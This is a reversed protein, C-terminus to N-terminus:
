GEKLPLTDHTIIDLGIAAEFDYRDDRIATLLKGYGEAHQDMSIEEAPRLSGHLVYPAPFHMKCLSATQQLPTLFTRLTHNQYGEPTYAEAPGAATLALMMHKGALKDGDTGYAFGHELVLDQWEKIISPTSYWFFPFQFLIVDHELLRAQEKDADIVHRPYEALLDVFTIDEVDKLVDLMAKNARSFRHGPHAYYVLLKAM